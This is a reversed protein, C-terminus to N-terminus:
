QEICNLIHIWALISRVFFQIRYQVQDTIVDQSAAANLLDVYRPSSVRAALVFWAAEDASPLYSGELMMRMGNLVWPDHLEDSQGCPCVRELLKEM